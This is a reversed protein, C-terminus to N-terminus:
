GSAAIVRSRSTVSVPVGASKIRKDIAAKAKMPTSIIAITVESSQTGLFLFEAYELAM